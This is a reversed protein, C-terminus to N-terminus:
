KQRAVSEVLVGGTVQEAQRHRERLNSHTHTHTYPSILMLRQEDDDDEEERKPSARLTNILSHIVRTHTHTHAHTFQYESWQVKDEFRIGIKIM